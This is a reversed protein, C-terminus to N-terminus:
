KKYFPALLGVLTTFTSATNDITHDPLVNFCGPSCVVGTGSGSCSCRSSAKDNCSRSLMLIYHFLHHAYPADLSVDYFLTNFRMEPTTAAVFKGDPEGELVEFFRFLGKFYQNKSIIPPPLSPYLTRLTAATPLVSSNALTFTPKNPANETNAAATSGSDTAGTTGKGTATPSGEAHVFNSATDDEGCTLYYFLITINYCLHLASHNSQVFHISQDELDTTSDGTNAIKTFVTNATAPESAAADAAHAHYNLLVMSIGRKVIEHAYFNLVSSDLEKLSSYAEMLSSESPPMYYDLNSGARDRGGGPTVAEIGAGGPTAAASRTASAGSGARARPSIATSDTNGSGTCSYIYESLIYDIRQKLGQTTSVTGAPNSADSDCVGWINQLKASNHSQALLAKTKHMVDSLHRMTERQYTAIQDSPDFASAPQAGNNDVEDLMERDCKDLMRAVYSPAVIEDFICRALYHSLLTNVTPVDKNLENIIEFIKDFGQNMWKRYEVGSRNPTVCLEVLLVSIAEMRSGTHCYDFSAMISRKIVEYYPLTVSALWGPSTSSAAAADAAAKTGGGVKPSGNAAKEAESAQLERLQEEFHMNCEDLYTHAIEAASVELAKLYHEQIIVDIRKKYNQILAVIKTSVEDGDGRLFGELLDNGDTDDESDFNPDHDDLCEVGGELAEATSSIPVKKHRHPGRPKAARRHSQFMERRSNKSANERRIQELDSKDFFLGDSSM